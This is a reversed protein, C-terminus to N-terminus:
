YYREIDSKKDIKLPFHEHNPYLNTSSVQHARKDFNTFIINNQSAYFLVIKFFNIEYVDLLLALFNFRMSFM